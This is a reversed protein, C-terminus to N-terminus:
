EAIAPEDDLDVVPLDAICEHALERWREADSGNHEADAIDRCVEQIARVIDDTSDDMPNGIPLLVGRKAELSRAGQWNTDYGYTAYVITRGDEHQRVGVFWTSTRNAQFEYQGDHDKARASAILPWNAEEIRVPPRGTLTITKKSKSM